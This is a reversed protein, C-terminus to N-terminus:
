SEYIENMRGAHKRYPPRTYSGIIFALPKGRSKSLQFMENTRNGDSSLWEITFDPAIKGPKPAYREREVCEARVGKYTGRTLSRAVPDEDTLTGYPAYSIELGDELFIQPM